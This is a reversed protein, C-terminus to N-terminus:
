ERNEGEAPLMGAFLWAYGQVLWVFSSHVSQTLLVKIQVAINGFSGVAVYVDAHDPRHARAFAGQDGAHHLLQDQAAHRRAGPPLPEGVLQGLAAAALGDHGGLGFEHGALRDADRQVILGGDPHAHHVAHAIQHLARQAGLLVARGPHHMGGPEVVVNGKLLRRLDTGSLDDGIMGGDPQHDGGVAADGVQAPLGVLLRLLPHHPLQLLDALGKDQDQVAAM